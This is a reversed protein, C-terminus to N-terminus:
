RRSAGLVASWLPRTGLVCTKVALGVLIALVLVFPINAVPVLHECSASNRGQWLALLVEEATVEPRPGTSRWTLERLFPLKQGVLPGVEVRVEIEQERRIELSSM